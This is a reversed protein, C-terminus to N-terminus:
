SLSNFYLHKIYNNFAFIKFKAKFEDPFNFVILGLYAIIVIIKKNDNDNSDSNNNDSNHNNYNDNSDYHIMTFMACHCENFRRTVHLNCM